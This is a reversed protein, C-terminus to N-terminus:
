FNLKSVNEVFMGNFNLSSMYTHETRSSLNAEVKLKRTEGEQTSPDCIHVLTDTM